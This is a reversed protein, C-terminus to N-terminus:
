DLAQQDAVGEIVMPHLPTSHESCCGGEGVDRGGEGGGREGARGEEPVGHGGM